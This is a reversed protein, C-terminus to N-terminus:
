QPAYQLLSHIDVDKNFYVLFLYKGQYGVPLNSFAKNPTGNADYFIRKEDSVSTMFYFPAKLVKLTPNNPDIYNAYTDGYYNMTDLRWWDFSYLPGSISSQNAKYALGVQMEDYQYTTSTFAPSYMYYIGTAFLGVAIVILYKYKVTSLSQHFLIAVFMALFPFIPLDYSNLHTKAFSFFTLIVLATVLPAVIEKWSPDLRTAKIISWLIGVAVIVMYTWFWGPASSLLEKIYFATDSSGTTTSTTYTLTGFIYTNWFSSGFRISQLIHWPAVIVISAVSGIWLYRSQLWRWENYAFSYILLIPGTLLVIFSKILFGIAILPFIWFLNKEKKWGKICVFLVTLIAALVGSDLRVERALFYFPPSFLLLLFAFIAAHRNKTFEFVLLYVMSLCVLSALIGPLRFPWEQQGFVEVSAIALWFYLPPKEFFHHGYVSLTSIDASRMTDVIVNAYIAEDYDTFPRTIQYSLFVAGIAVLVIPIWVDSRTLFGRIAIINTM